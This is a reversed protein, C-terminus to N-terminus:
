IDKLPALPIEFHYETLWRLVVQAQSRQGAMVVAPELMSRYVQWGAVAIRVIDALTRDNDGNNCFKEM